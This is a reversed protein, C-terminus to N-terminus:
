LFSKIEKLADSLKLRQVDVGEPFADLLRTPTSGDLMVFVGKDTQSRILRGYAQKLKLRTLNEDYARGGFINRRERHLITPRPWPVRDFVMCRLSRGAVDIGDRIADTGMMCAKDDERFMDTLTGIDIDNMHQAYLPIAQRELADHVANYSQRLRAISTFLGLAGGNSSEFIAKMANAVAMTNNKDIDTIIMIKSQDAYKFPSPLDIKVPTIDTMYSAGLAQEAEQWSQEDEGKQSRLTASTMVMGHVSHRLSNGLPEMPNKYRRFMGCDYNRGEIRTIEFWDIMENVHIGAILDDVM